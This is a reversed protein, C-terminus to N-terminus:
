PQQKLMDLFSKLTSLKRESESYLRASFLATAAHGALLSFLEHDVPSFADKHSLLKFIALVGILKEKITLPIVAIPDNEEQESFDTLYYSEAQKAAAGIIGEGIRITSPTEDDLGESSILKLESHTEELMYLGFEESGILNIVIEMVINVVEQFNLTSHLQFSAVYLNALNSNQEEVEIYKEAFNKNEREIDLFRNELSTIKQNMEAITAKLEAIEKDKDDKSKEKKELEAELNAVKFRLRENEKIVEELFIKGKNFTELFDQKSRGWKHKGQTEEPQDAM